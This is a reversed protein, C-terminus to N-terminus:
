KRSPLTNPTSGNSARAAGAGPYSNNVTVLRDPEDFPLPELLVARIVSFIAVNAGICVALPALVVGSFARQRLLQKLGFRVDRFFSEM